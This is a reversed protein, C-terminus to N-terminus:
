LSPALNHQIAAEGLAYQAVCWVHNAIITAILWAIGLVPSVYRNVAYLPRMQTSLTVYSIASLMIVGLIMALPQVWMLDWGGLVGVYLAGALSGGGLTIAGQLWGPGSLRTYIWAKRLPPSQRAVDIPDATHLTGPTESTQMFRLNGCAGGSELVGSACARIKGSGAHVAATPHVYSTSVRRRGWDRRGGRGHTSGLGGDDFSSGSGCFRGNEMRVH